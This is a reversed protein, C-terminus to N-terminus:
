CVSHEPSQNIKPLEIVKHLRRQEGPAKQRQGALLGQARAEPPGLMKHNNPLTRVDWLQGPLGTLKYSPVSFGSGGDCSVKTRHRARTPVARMDPVPSGTVKLGAACRTRDGLFGRASDLLNLGERPDAQAAPQQATGPAATSPLGGDARAAAEAPLLATRLAQGTEPTRGAAANPM